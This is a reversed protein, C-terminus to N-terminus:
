STSTAPEVQVGSTGMPSGRSKMWCENMRSFNQFGFCSEYLIKILLKIVETGVLPTFYPFTKNSTPFLFSELSIVFSEIFM